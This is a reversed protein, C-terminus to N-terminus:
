QIRMPKSTVIQLGVRNRDVLGGPLLTSQQTRAYFVELRVWNQPEWGFISYTVLSRLPLQEFALTLPTDDRFVLSQDTYFHRSNFLPTRYGADIEQNQNTGGFGFSPLYSRLYGVHFVSHEGHRSLSFRLAPGTRSSDFANGQLYVAGAGGSVSWDSTLQYDIAAELSQINLQESEGLVSARRFSYDAGAALRESFRYRYTSLSEAIHGGRLFPQFTESQQFSVDQYSLSSAITSRSNIVYNVGGRADYTTAGVHRYPIGAFDILDTSPLLAANGNAFWSLHESEERKLDVHARQDWRNLESFTRYNLFSGSYGMGLHTHRGGYSLDAGPFVTSVYDATPSTTGEGFLSVNTDYTEAVGVTPTFTWGPGKPTDTATGSGLREQAQLASATAVGALAIAFIFPKM